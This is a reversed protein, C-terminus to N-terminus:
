GEKKYDKKPQSNLPSWTLEIGFEDVKLPGFTAHEDLEKKVLDDMNRSHEVAGAHNKGVKMNTPQGDHSIPFSFKLFEVLKRDHYDALETEWFEINFNSPVLIRCM